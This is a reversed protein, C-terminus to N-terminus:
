SRVVHTEDNEAFKFVDHNGGSQFKAGDTLSDDRGSSTGVIRPSMQTPWGPVQCTVPSMQNFMVEMLLMGGVVFSLLLLTALVVWCSFLFFLFSGWCFPRRCM